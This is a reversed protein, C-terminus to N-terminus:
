STTAADPEGEGSNFYNSRQDNTEQDGGYPPTPHKIIPVKISFNEVKAAEVPKSGNSNGQTMVPRSYSHTVGIDRHQPKSRVGGVEDEFLFTSLTGCLARRRAKERQMM